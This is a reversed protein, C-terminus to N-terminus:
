SGLHLVRPVRLSVWLSAYCRMAVCLSSFLRFAVLRSQFFAIVMFVSLRAGLHVSGAWVAALRFYTVFSSSFLLLVSLEYFTVFRLCRDFPVCFDVFITM